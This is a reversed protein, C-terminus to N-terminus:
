GLVRQRLERLEMAEQKRFDPSSVLQAILFAGEEVSIRDTNFIMDYREMDDLNSHFYTAAFHRRQQDVTSVETAAEDRSCRKSQAIREVRRDFSGIIRVHVARPFKATIVHAARGILIVQGIRALQVITRTMSAIMTAGPVSIGLMGEIHEDISLTQEGSFFGSIRKPLHHDEIVREGLDKDVVVWPHRGQSVETLISGTRYAIEEGLAGMQRSITVIPNTGDAEWNDREKAKLFAAVVYPDHKM